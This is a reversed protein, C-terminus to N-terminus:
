APPTTGTSDPARRRLGFVSALELLGACATIVGVGSVAGRVYPSALWVRVGPLFSAM